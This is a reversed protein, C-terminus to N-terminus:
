GGGQADGERALEVVEGDVGACLLCGTARQCCLQGRGAARQRRAAVQHGAEAALMVKLGRQGNMGCPLRWRQSVWACFPM